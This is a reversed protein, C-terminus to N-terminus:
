RLQLFFFLNSSLFLGVLSMLWAFFIGDLYQQEQDVIISATGGGVLFFSLLSTMQTVNPSLIGKQQKIRRVSKVPSTFINEYHTRVRPGVLTFLFTRMILESSTLARESGDYM